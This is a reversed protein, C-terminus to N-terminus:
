TYSIKSLIGVNSFGKWGDEVDIDFLNKVQCNSSDCDLVPIEM